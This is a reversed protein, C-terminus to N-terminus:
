PRSDARGLRRSLLHVRFARGLNGKGEVPMCLIKRVSSHAGDAGVLFQARVIHLEGTSGHQLTATVRNDDQTFGILGTAYRVDADREHLAARLIPELRSQLCYWAFPEPSFPKADLLTEPALILEEESSALWQRAFVRSVRSGAAHVEGALGLVV